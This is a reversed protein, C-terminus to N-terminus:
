VPEHVTYWMTERFMQMFSHIATDDVEDLEEAVSTFGRVQEVRRATVRTPNEGEASLVITYGASSAGVDRTVAPTGDYFAFGLGAEVLPIGDLAVLPEISRAERTASSRENAPNDFGRRLAYAVPLVNTRYRVPASGFVPNEGAHLAVGEPVVLGGLGPLERLEQLHSTIYWGTTVHALGETPAPREWCDSEYHHLLRFWSHTERTLLEPTPITTDIREGPHIGSSM